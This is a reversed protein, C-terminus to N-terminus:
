RGASGRPRRPAPSPVRAALGDWFDCRETRLGEGTTVPVALDLYPDAPPVVAPWAPAGDATPIGTAAFSTWLELVTRELELDEATPEHPTMRELRQFVFFLELGHVAGFPGFVPGSLGHSFLYRRVPRDQSRAAARAIRRAPCVFQIDGTMAAWAETATPFGGEGVPYLELARRATGPGWPALLSRVLLEYAAEGLEPVWLRTEDSNVGVVLPVHHFRGAELARLPDEPIIRGDITPGVPTRVIGGGTSPPEGTRDPALVLEEPTRARLCAAADPGSCGLAEALRLGEVAREAAPRAGPGGSQLLARSFLGAAGPSVLHMLTDTAGASEGFLMVRDPDGGFAAINDRVWRLAAQQDLLGYNGSEAGLAPHVLFGLLGLRYQVTVVVVGGRAALLDGEYLRTGVQVLSTSGRVNAGGHLFVLVPLSGPAAGSPSWVNLFLCDEDGVVEGSATKQPCPPPWDTAELVEIWPERPRPPLWRLPGAPAAAYPIGLFADAGGATRGEVPGSLTRVLPGDGASLATASCLATALVAAPLLPRRNM